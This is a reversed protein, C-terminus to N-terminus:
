EFKEPCMIFFVHTNDLIEAHMEDAETCINWRLNANNELETKLAGADDTEFIYGVFPITGILPGFMVGNKFSKIENDFGNLFGEEVGMCALGVPIYDAKEIVADTVAILDNSEKLQNRFETEVSRITENNSSCESGTNSATNKNGCGILSSLLLTILIIYVISKNFKNETMNNTKKNTKKNTNYINNMTMNGEMFIFM